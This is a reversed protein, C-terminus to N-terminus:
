CILNFPDKIDTMDRFFKEEETDESIERTQAQSSLM